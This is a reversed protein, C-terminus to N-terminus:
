PNQQGGRLPANVGDPPPAPNMFVGNTGGTPVLFINSGFENTAFPGFRNSNVGFMNSSIIMNNSGVAFNNTGTVFNNNGVGPASSPGLQGAASTTPTAGAPNAPTAGSPSTSVAGGSARQSGANLALLATLSSIILFKTKM